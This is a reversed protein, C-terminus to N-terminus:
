LAMLVHEHASLSRYINDLQEKSSAEITITISIYKGGKSPRSYMNERDLGPVHRLVLEFVLNEFEDSALGMAKIPFQCPFELLTENNDQDSM